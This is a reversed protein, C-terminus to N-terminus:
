DPGSALLETLARLRSRRRELCSEQLVALNRPQAARTQGTAECLETRMKVWTSAYGDLLTAVRQWTDPAYSVGTDLLAQKVKAKTPADWIGALRRELHGCEPAQAQQGVWGWGALVGLSVVVSALGLTRRRARRKVEPDDELAALLEEMSAPRQSPDARLGTLVTRAVWAPVESSAPPMPAKGDAHTRALEEVTKGPFPLQGYLAEYLAACFSFVDTHVDAPQGRLLLEPAMYRPTGMLSGTVTLEEPTAPTGPAPHPPAPEPAAPRVRALGFDMVRARGDKGVLVNDPKFDRHILGAAHAAALGRGAELYTRLVQRWTRPSGARWQRLTQGEVYEMAIFLSGDELAGSDYVAVVHPHSLRALSQAERSLRAREQGGSSSDRKRPRLLKLAVRRDLRPDYAALVLGMGGQGLFDLVTYRGALTRGPALEPPLGEKPASPWTPAEGQEPLPPRHPRLLTTELGESGLAPAVQKTSDSM